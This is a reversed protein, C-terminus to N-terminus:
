HNFVFEASNLLAWFVDETATQRTADPGNFADTAIELEEETPPRSLSTLYLETVIETPSKDSAALKHARGDANSLKAQLAKSNMLHLSQVVSLDKDRECPPDSSPNPRNFADMFQSEIKYSWVQTARAGIPTAAFSDPVGTADNVADLLVEAPLRRRYARSFDRTDAINSENPTSSLQYLRSEMITRMLHKLDYGHTVFDNALADLLPPNVCPNSIRFDDVPEVLGRGLFMGWVRNVAARAFFPNDPAILWDALARRPDGGDAPQTAPGEPPHPLM